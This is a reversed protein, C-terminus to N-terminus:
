LGPLGATCEIRLQVQTWQPQVPWAQDPLAPVGPVRLSPVERGPAADLGDPVRLPVRVEDAAVQDGHDLHELRAPEHDLPFLVLGVGHQRIHAGGPRALLVPYDLM